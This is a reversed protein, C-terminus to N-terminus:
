WPQWSIEGGLAHVCSKGVRGLLLLKAFAVTPRVSPIRMHAHKGLINAKALVSPEFYHPYDTELGLDTEKTAEEVLRHRWQVEMLPIEKSQLRKF